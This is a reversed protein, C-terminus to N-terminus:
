LPLLVPANGCGIVHKNTDLEGNNADDCEEENCHIGEQLIVTYEHLRYSGM